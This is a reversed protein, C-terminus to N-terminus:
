TINPYKRLNKSEIPNSQYLFGGKCSTILIGSTMGNKIYKYMQGKLAEEIRTINIKMMQWTQSSSSNTNRWITQHNYRQCCRWNDQLNWNEGSIMDSKIFFQHNEFDKQNKVKSHIYRWNEHLNWNEDNAMVSQILFRQNERVVCNVKSM